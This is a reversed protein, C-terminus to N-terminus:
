FCGAMWGNALGSITNLTVPPKLRDWYVNPSLCVRSLGLMQASFYLCVVVYEVDSETQEIAMSSYSSKMIRM